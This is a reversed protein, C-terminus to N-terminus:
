RPLQFPLRGHRSAAVSYGRPLSWRIESRFLSCASFFLWRSRGRHAALARARRCPVDLDCPRIAVDLVDILEPGLRRRAIPDLTVKGREKAVFECMLQLGGSITGASKAWTREAPSRFPCLRRSSPQAARCPGISPLARPALRSSWGGRNPRHAAPQARASRQPTSGPLMSVQEINFLSQMRLRSVNRSIDPAAHYKLLARSHACNARCALSGRRRESYSLSSISHRWIASCISVLSLFRNPDSM